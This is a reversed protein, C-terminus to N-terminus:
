ARRRRRRLVLLVGLGALLTTAGTSGGGSSCGCGNKSDLLVTAISENGVADTVHVEAQYMAGDSIEVTATTVGPGLEITEVHERSLLDSEDKVEFLEIRAGLLAADTMDDSMTWALETSGGDMERMREGELYVVPDIGDVTVQTSAPSEDTNGGLDVASVQVEYTGSEGATGVAFTRVYTLPRAEGNVTVNYRLLETPIMGDVGSVRVKSDAVSVPQIPYEIISTEPAGIDDTPIHFLDANLTLFAENNGIGRLIVAYEGKSFVPGTVPIAGFKALLKPLMQEHVVQLLRASDLGTEAAYVQDIDMRTMEMGVPTALMANTSPDIGLAMTARADMGVEITKDSGDPLHGILELEIGEVVAVMDLTDVDDSGGGQTSTLRPPKTLRMEMDLTTGPPFGPLLQMIHETPLHVGLAALSDGDICTLGQRWVQYLAGNVLGFNLALGLHSAVEGLDPVEGAVDQPAGDDFERVCEAPEYMSSMAVDVGIDVGGQRVFLDQLAASFQTAQIEGEFAGIGGLMEEVKPGLAQQAMEEAKDLLMDIVYDKAFDIMWEAIDGAACGSFNINIDDESLQLDVQKFVATPKGGDLMIDFDITARADHIYLTDQCTMEGFCAYPDDVFLEGEGDASINLYLRLTGEEPITISFDHVELQIHTNRQTATMCSFDKAIPGPYIDKPVLGPVQASIFDLGAQSVYGDLQHAHATPGALVTGAAALTSALATKTLM